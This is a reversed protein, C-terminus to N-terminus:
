VVHLSPQTEGSAGGFGFEVGLGRTDAQVHVDIILRSNIVRPLVYIGDTLADTREDRWADM